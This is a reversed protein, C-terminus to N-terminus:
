PGRGRSRCSVRDPASPVWPLSQAWPRMLRLRWPSRIPPLARMERRVIQQHVALRRARPDGAEDCRNAVLACGCRTRTVRSSIVRSIALATPPASRPTAGGASTGACHGGRCSAIPESRQNSLRTRVPDTRAITRVKRDFGPVVGIIARCTAQIRGARQGRVGGANPGVRIDV